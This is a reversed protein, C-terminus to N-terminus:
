PTARLLAPAMSTPFPTAASRPAHPAERASATARIPSDLCRTQKWPNAPTVKGAAPIGAPRCTQRNTGTGMSPLERANCTFAAASGPNGSHAGLCSQNIQLHPKGIATTFFLIHTVDGEFYAALVSAVTVPVAACQHIGVAARRRRRGAGCTRLRAGQQCSSCRRGAPLLGDSAFACPRLPLAFPALAPALLRRPFFRPVPM